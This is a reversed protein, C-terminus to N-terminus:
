KKFKELGLLGLSRNNTWKPARGDRYPLLISGDKYRILRSFVSSDAPSLPLDEDVNEPSPVAFEKEFRIGVGKRGEKLQIPTSHPRKPKLGVATLGEPAEVYGVYYPGPELGSFLAHGQAGTRRMQLPKLKGNEMAALFVTVGPVPTHKDTLTATLVLEAGNPLQIAHQATGTLSLPYPQNECVACAAASSELDLFTFVGSADTKGQSLPRKGESADNPRRYVAIDLGAQPAAGKLVKVTQSKLRFQFSHESNWKVPRAIGCHQVIYTGEDPKALKLVGRRDTNVSTKKFNDTGSAKFFLTVPASPAPRGDVTLKITYPCDGDLIVSSQFNKDDAYWSFAKKQSGCLVSYRIDDKLLGTLRVTGGRDTNGEYITETVDFQSEGEGITYTGQIKVPKNVYPGSSDSVHLCFERDRMQRIKRIENVVSTCNHLRNFYNPQLM